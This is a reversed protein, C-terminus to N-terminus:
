TAVIRVLIEDARPEDIEVTDLTFPSHPGHSLAATMQM